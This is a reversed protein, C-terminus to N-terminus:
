QRCELDQRRTLEENFSKRKVVATNSFSMLQIMAADM